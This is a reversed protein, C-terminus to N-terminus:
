SKAAPAAKAPKAPAAPKEKSEIRDVTMSYFVTIKSGVKVGAPVTASGLAIEFNEKGKILTIKTADVATVTGTVQYDKAFLSPALFLSALALRAIFLKM